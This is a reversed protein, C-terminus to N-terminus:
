KELVDSHLIGKIARDRWPGSPDAFTKSLDLRNVMVGTVNRKLQNLLRGDPQVLFSGYCSERKSTNSASIWLHNNAARGRVTGTVLSGMEKGEEEYARASLNGDYFSQFLVETGLLKQERYLEPYRWEHCILLGCVVGNIKFVVPEKGPQYYCHEHEGPRGYCIRKDYRKVMVGQDDIVWLCNYPKEMAADFHHSGVVAWIRLAACHEAIQALASTILRQRHRDYRKFEYGAYGSLSSESCHAVEAGQEKANALLTAIHTRNKEVPGSVPFQCTAVILERRM